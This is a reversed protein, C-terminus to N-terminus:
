DKMLIVKCEDQLPTQEFAVLSPLMVMLIIITKLMSTETVAMTMVTMTVRMMLTCTAVNLSPLVASTSTIM